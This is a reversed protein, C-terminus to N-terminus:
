QWEVSYQPKPFVKAILREMQEQYEPHVWLQGTWFTTGKPLFERWEQWWLEPIDVNSMDVLFWGDRRRNPGEEPQSITIHGTM